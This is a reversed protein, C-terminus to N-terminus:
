GSGALLTVLLAGDLVPYRNGDDPLRKRDRPDVPADRCVDAYAQETPPPHSSPTRRPVGM